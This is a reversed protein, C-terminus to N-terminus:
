QLNLDIENRVDFLGAFAVSYMRDVTRCNSLRPYEGIIFLAESQCAGSELIRDIPEEVIYTCNGKANLM